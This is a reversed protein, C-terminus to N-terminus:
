SQPAHSRILDDALLKNIHKSLKLRTADTLHPLIAHYIDWDAETMDAEKKILMIRRAEKEAWQTIATERDYINLSRWAPERILKSRLNNKASENLTDWEMLSVRIDALTIPAYRAAWDLLKHTEPGLGIKCPVCDKEPFRIKYGQLIYSQELNAIRFFDGIDKLVNSYTLIFFADESSTKSHINMVRDGNAHMFEICEKATEPSLIRDSINARCEAIQNNEANTLQQAQSLLPFLALYVPLLAVAILNLKKM